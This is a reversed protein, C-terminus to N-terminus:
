DRQYVGVFRNLSTGCVECVGTRNLQELGARGIRKGTKITAKSGIKAKVPKHCKLCYFEDEALPAKNKMKKKKLFEILDSGMVLLPTVDKEM